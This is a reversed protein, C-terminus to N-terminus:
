RAAGRRIGRRGAELNALINVGKARMFKGIKRRATFCGSASFPLRIKTIEGAPM